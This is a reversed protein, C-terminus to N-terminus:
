QYPVNIERGALENDTGRFNYKVCLEKLNTGLVFPNEKLKM